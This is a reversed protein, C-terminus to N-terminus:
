ISRINTSPFPVGAHAGVTIIWWFVQVRDTPHTLRNDGKKLLGKIFYGGYGV